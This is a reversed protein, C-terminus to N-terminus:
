PDLVLAEAAMSAAFEACTGQWDRFRVADRFRRLIALRVVQRDQWYFEGSMRLTDVPENPLNSCETKASPAYSWAKDGAWASCPQRGGAFVRDRFEGEMKRRYEKRTPPEIELKGVSSPIPPLTTGFDQLAGLVNGVLAKAMQQNAAKNILIEDQHTLAWGHRLVDVIKDPVAECDNLTKFADAPGQLREHELAAPAQASAAQSAAFAFGLALVGCSMFHGRSRPLSLMRRM